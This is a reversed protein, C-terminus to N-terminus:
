KSTVEIKRDWKCVLPDVVAKHPYVLAYPWSLKSMTVRQISSESIFLSLNEM